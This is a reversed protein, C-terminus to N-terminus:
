NGKNTYYRFNGSDAADVYCCYYLQDNPNYITLKWAPAVSASPTEVDIYGEPTKEPIRTYVLEISSVEFKVYDSLETSVKEIATEVPVVGIETKDTIQTRYLASGIDVEDSEVMFGILYICNYNECGKYNTNHSTRIYDFTLDCYEKTVIFAYGYTNESIALVNVEQVKMQMTPEAPYSLSNIYNEYFEVADCVAIEKDSLQFKETSDPSYTGICEFSDYPSYCDLCPYIGEVKGGLEVAKGRNFAITDYEMSKGISLSVPSTWETMDRYWTEDYFLSNCSENGSNLNDFNDKVTPYDTFEEYSDSYERTYFLYDENMVYDDYLSQFLQCFQAYQTQFDQQETFEANFTYISDIEPIVVEMEDSAVLNECSNVISKLTDTDRTLESVTLTQTKSSNNSEIQEQNNCASFTSVITILALLILITKKM